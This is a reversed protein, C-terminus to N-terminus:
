DRAFPTLDDSIYYKAPVADFFKHLFDYVFVAAKDMFPQGFSAMLSRWNDNFLGTVLQSSEKDGVFLKDATIRMRGKVEFKYTTKKPNCKLYLEGNRKQVFFFFDFRIFLKEIKVKGNGDGHISEGGLLTKVMPSSSFIKYRGKISVDCTLEVIAREDEMKTVFKNVTCDKIGKVSGQVLTIDVVDLVAVSVNQLEIPDLKPIDLEPVGTKAIDKIITQFMDKQCDGDNIKCKSLSDVFASESFAFVAVFLCLSKKLFMKEGELGRM